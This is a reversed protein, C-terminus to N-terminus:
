YVQATFLLTIETDTLGNGKEVAVDNVFHEVVGLPVVPTKSKVLAFLVTVPPALPTVTVHYLVEANVVDLPVGV